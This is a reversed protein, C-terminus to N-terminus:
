KGAVKVIRDFYAELFGRSSHVEIDSYSFDHEDETLIVDCGASLASYYEIGDEFDSIRKDNLAKLVMQKDADAVVLRECLMKMKEKARRAGSKKEAFYFAIALCVPSTYMTFHMAPLSIVRAAYNFVPFEKNLVAVLINADLFVRM